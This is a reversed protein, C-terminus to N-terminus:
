SPSNVRRHIGSRLPLANFNVLFGLPMGSLRLYTDLQAFHVPALAEMAKGEIIIAEAVLIDVRFRKALRRGKYHVAVHVQARAPIGRRALEDMLCEEYISEVLGAGLERRVEGIADVVEAALLNLEAPLDQHRFRRAHDM